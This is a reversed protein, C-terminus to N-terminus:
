RKKGKVVKTFGEEDIESEVRVRRPPPRETNRDVLAPADEMEEDEDEDEEDDTDQADDAVEVKKGFKAADVVAKNGGREMWTGWLRKIEEEVLKKEAEDGSRVRETGRWIRGAM